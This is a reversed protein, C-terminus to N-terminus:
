THHTIEYCGYVLVRLRGHLYTWFNAELEELAEDDRRKEDQSRQIMAKKYISAIYADEKTFEM